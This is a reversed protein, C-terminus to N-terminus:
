AALPLQLDYFQQKGVELFEGNPIGREQALARNALTASLGDAMQVVAAAVSKQPTGYRAGPSSCTWVHRLMAAGEPWRHDLNRLAGACIELTLQDHSVLRGLTTMQRSESYTRIKGIDHFIAGVLAVERDVLSLGALEWVIQAVDLSHRLLGGAESHHYSFSAPRSLFSTATELDSLVDVVFQQLPQITLREVLAQLEAVGGALPCSVSTPILTLGKACTTIRRISVIDVLRQGQFLTEKASIEVTDLRALESPLALSPSLPRAESVEGSNKENLRLCWEVTGNAAQRRGIAVVLFIGSISEGVETEYPKSAQDNLHNVTNVPKM